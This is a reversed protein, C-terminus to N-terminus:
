DVMLEVHTHSKFIALIAQLDDPALHDMSSRFHMWRVLIDTSLDYHGYGGRFINDFAELSWPGIGTTDVLLERAVEQYFTKMSKIQAGDLVFETKM